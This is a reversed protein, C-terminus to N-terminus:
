PPFKLDMHILFVDRLVKHCSLSSECAWCARKIAPEICTTPIRRQKSDYAVSSASYWGPPSTVHKSIGSDLWSQLVPSARCHDWPLELCAGAVALADWNRCLCTSLNHRYLGGKPIPYRTSYQRRKYKYIICITNFYWYSSVLTPQQHARNFHPINWRNYQGPKSHLNKQWFNAVKEAREM